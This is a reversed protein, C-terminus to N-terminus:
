VEILRRMMAATSHLFLVYGFKVTFILTRTIFM